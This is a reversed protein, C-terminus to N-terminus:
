RRCGEGIPEASQGTLTGNRQPQMTTWLYALGAAHKCNLRRPAPANPPSSISALSSSSWRWRPPMGGGDQVQRRQREGNECVSRSANTPSAASATASLGTRRVKRYRYAAQLDLTRMCSRSMGSGTALELHPQCSSAPLATARCILLLSADSERVPLPNTRGGLRTRCWSGAVLPVRLEAVGTM